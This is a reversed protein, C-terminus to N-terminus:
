RMGERSRELIRDLVFRAATAKSCPGSRQCGREDIWLLETQGGGFGRDRGVQNAVIADAGKRVRKADARAEVDETEAAFGIVWRPRQPGQAVGALIDPNEELQLRDAGPTGRKLKSEPASAPRYDSVAAAAVFVDLGALRSRVAAEMDRASEVSVVEVGPHWPRVSTPGLVLDVAYGSAAVLDALEVGLTGTSRNTLIRVPDVAEWTPGATILWRGRASPPRTLALAANAVQEPEAMRGVGERGSALPGAEPGVLHAGRALLTKVNARTAPHSWMRSEMAPALLLPARVSLLTATLPCDGFGVAIRAMTHATAPAVVVANVDYGSEVHSIGSASGDWDTVVPRGSLAEFTLPPVFRAAGETLVVQVTCGASTLRRLVEVAKYAAISGTVGLLIGPSGM